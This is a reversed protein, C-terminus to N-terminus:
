LYALLAFIADNLASLNLGYGALYYRAQWDLNPQNAKRNESNKKEFAKVYTWNTNRDEIGQYILFKTKPQFASIQNLTEELTPTQTIDQWYTLSLDSLVKQFDSANNQKVAKRLAKMRKASLQEKLVTDWTPMPLGSLLLIKVEPAIQSKEKLFDFLIRASIQSGESHGYFYIRQDYSKAFSQRVWSIAQKGCSVLDTQTHSNFLEDEITYGQKNEANYQIGPKDITLLMAKKENLMTVFLPDDVVKMSYKGTGHFGVLLPYKKKEKPIKLYVQCTLGSETKVEHTYNKFNNKAFSTSSFFYFALLTVLSIKKM